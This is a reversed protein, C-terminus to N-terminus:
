AFIRRKERVGGGGLHQTLVVPWGGGGRDGMTVDGDVEQCLLGLILPGPPFELQLVHTGLPRPQRSLCELQSEGRRTWM